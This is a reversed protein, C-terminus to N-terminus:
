ELSHHIHFNEILRREGLKEFKVVIAQGGSSTREKSMVRGVDDWDAHYIIDGVNYAREPSYLTSASLELKRSQVAVTEPQSLDVLRSHRCRTCRYWARNANGEIEGVYELRTERECFTCYGITYKRRSM